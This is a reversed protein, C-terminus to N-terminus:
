AAEARKPSNPAAVFDVNGGQKRAPDSGTERNSFVFGNQESQAAQQTHQAASGAPQRQRNEEQKRRAHEERQNREKQM